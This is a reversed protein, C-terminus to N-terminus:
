AADHGADNTADTGVDSSTDTGVDSSTAADSGADAGGDSEADIGVDSTVGSDHGVDTGVDGSDIQPGADTSGCTPPMTARCIGRTGTGGIQCTCLLGSACDTPVMCVGGEGQGCGPVLIAGLLVLSFAALHRFIM